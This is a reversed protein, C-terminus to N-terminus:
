VNIHKQFLLKRIKNQDVGTLIYEKLQLVFRPICLKKFFPENYLYKASCSVFNLVNSTYLM